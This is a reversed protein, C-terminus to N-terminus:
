GPIDKLMHPFHQVMKRCLIAMRRSMKSKSTTHRRIIGLDKNSINQVFDWMQGASVKGARSGAHEMVYRKHVGPFSRGDSFVIEGAHGQNVFVEQVFVFYM